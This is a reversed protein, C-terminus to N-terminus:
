NKISAKPWYLKQGDALLRKQLRSYNVEQVATEEELAHVAATAASQGLIMFVPEMRISGYAIHSASLGVPVLLNSCEGSKPVISRYAISYPGKPSIQVDGENRVHGSADVYRQTNHSDMNYSAMGVSDPVARRWLSDYESMVYDSVMRRAERVYINFPWHKNDKFEDKAFGWSGVEARVKEPVRPHNAMTWMLGMIYSRHAALVKDRTRHDADPYDYNMGIWDTSVAYNNNLDTKRNPMMRISMPVRYDGAEFNRLLLEYLQPDYDRPKSFSVQNEVVKTLCLRYNYAQVRHDGSGDMAPPSPEIGPLLGSSPDGAKVYPDVPKVFQHKRANGVQVGNLSEGYKANSERGVNYSVGAKAFLDGEFTADIFMGGRFSRGSEMRIEAIRGGSKSVGNKLDLREGYVVPVGAEAIMQNIIDQAVHPEFCWMTDKGVARSNKKRYKELTEHQWASPHQYHQWVRHYFERAIGGIANKNGSDTAGLGSTTMAGQRQGPEILVVSRGMRAMRAVQVAAAVGGATGGYVIVDYQKAAPKSSTYISSSCGNLSLLLITSIIIRHLYRMYKTRNM